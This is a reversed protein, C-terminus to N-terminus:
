EFDEILEPSKVLFMFEVVIFIVRGWITSFLLWNRPNWDWAIFSGILYCLLNICVMPILFLGIVYLVSKIANM